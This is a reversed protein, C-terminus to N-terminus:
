SKTYFRYNHSSTAFRKSHVSRTDTWYEIDTLMSVVGCNGMDMNYIDHTAYRKPYTTTHTYVFNQIPISFHSDLKQM